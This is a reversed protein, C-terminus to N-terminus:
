CFFIAFTQPVDGLLGDGLPFSFIACSINCFWIVEIKLAHLEGDAKKKKKTRDGHNHEMVGLKTTYKGFFDM